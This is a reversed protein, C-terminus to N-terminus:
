AKVPSSTPQGRGAHRLLHSAPYGFGRSLEPLLPPLAAQSWRKDQHELPQVQPSPSICSFGSSPGPTPLLTRSVKATGLTLFSLGLVSPNCFPPLSRDGAQAPGDLAEEQDTVSAGPAAAHVRPHLEPPTSPIPPQEPNPPIPDRKWHRRLPEWRDLPALSRVM